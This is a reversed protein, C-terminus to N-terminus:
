ASSGCGVATSSCTGNACRWTASASWRIPRSSCPAMPTWCNSRSAIAAPRSPPGRRPTRWPSSTRPRTAASSMRSISVIRCRNCRRSRPAAVGRTSCRSVPPTGRPRHRPSVRSRPSSSGVRARGSTSTPKAACTPSRCRHGHRSSCTATCGPWGGSTRTRWTASRATASSSSPSTTRAPCSPTPSTTSARCGATPATASSGTTSTCRTSARPAVSTSSSATGSGAAVSPSRAGTCAPPTTTGWGRRLGTSRCRCTRTTPRM